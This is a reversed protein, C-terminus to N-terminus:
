ANANSALKIDGEGALPSPFHKAVVAANGAADSVNFIVTYVGTTM